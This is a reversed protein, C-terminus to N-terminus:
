PLTGIRTRTNRITLPERRPNYLYLVARTAAPLVPTRLAFTLPTVAHVQYAAPQWAQYHLKQGASDTVELVLLVDPGIRFPLLEFRTELRLPHARMRDLPPHCLEVFEESGDHDDMRLTDLWVPSVSAVRELLWLGPGTASDVVVYGASAQEFDRHDVIRYHHASNLPDAQLAPVTQHHLSANIPWALALQHHGGVLQAELSGDGADIVHNVFRLPISQEPWLLTHDLNATFLTRVPLLLMLLATWRWMRVRIAEGDLAFASCLLLLPVFHIGARDEPFNVDMVIAMAIRALVDGWLLAHLLLAPPRLDKNQRLSKLTAATSASAILVVAYTAFPHATGIVYRCLSTVTVAHFGSTSGHYLLGQAKLTAAIDYALWLPACGMIMVLTGQLIRARAPIQHVNILVGLLALVLAWMPLLALIAANALLLGLLTRVLPATMPTRAYHLLGELALMWGALEIAYGRFLSFFDLVFPCALLATWTCWRILPERVLHGIRWASWAYLAFSLVSGMRISWPAEGFIRVSAIGIASGLYHNNADWHASGPLWQGPRLFWLVSACEDHVLPVWAARLLVYVAIVLVLAGYAIPEGRLRAHTAALAM